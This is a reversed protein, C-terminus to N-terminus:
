SPRSRRWAYWAGAGLAGAAAVAGVVIAAIAVASLGSDSQSQPTQAGGPTASTSGIGSTGSAGPTSTGGGAPTEGPSGGPTETAGTTEGPTSTPLFVPSPATCPQGAGMAANQVTAIDYKPNGAAGLVDPVGDAEDDGVILTSLGPGVAQLTLRLLVGDGSEFNRSLDAEDIRFSGDSDPLPDAVEFPNRPGAGSLMLDTNIATVKIIAPDYKVNFAFGSLGNSLGAAPPIGKAFVDVEFSDGPQVVRCSEITGLSLAQNDTPDTDIGITIAPAQALTQTAAAAASLILVAVAAVLLTRM